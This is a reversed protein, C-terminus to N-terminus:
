PFCRRCERWTTLMTPPVGPRFNRYLWQFVDDGYLVYKVLGPACSRRQHAVATAEDVFLVALKM